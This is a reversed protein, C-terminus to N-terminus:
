HCNTNWFEWSCSILEWTPGARTPSQPTLLEIVEQYSKRAGWCKAEDARKDWGAHGTGLWRQGWGVLQRILM